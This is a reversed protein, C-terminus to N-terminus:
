RHKLLLLTYFDKNIIYFVNARDHKSKCTWYFTEEFTAM